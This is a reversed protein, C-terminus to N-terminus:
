GENNALSDLFESFTEFISTIEFNSEMDLFVVEYRDKLFFNFCFLNGFPDEAFPVLNEDFMTSLYLSEGLMNPRDEYNMSILNSVVRERGKIDLINNKPYGANNEQIFSIFYEPFSIKLLNELEFILDNNMLPRVFTWANKKM